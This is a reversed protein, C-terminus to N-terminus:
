FWYHVAVNSMWQNANLKGSSTTELTGDIMFKGFNLTMGAAVATTERGSTETTSTTAADGDKTERDNLFFNQKVSARVTLWSTADTEFGINVPLASDTREDSQNTTKAESKTNQYSIDAIWRSTSSVEKIHGAGVTLTTTSGEQKAAATASTYESGVKNYDAYFTWDMMKYNAGINMYEGEWKSGATGDFDAEDKISMNAYAGLDGMLIGLGLNLNDYTKETTNTAKESASARHLRVGWEVGADGGFFLDFESSADAFGGNGTTVDNVGTYDVDDTSNTFADAGFYLGYVFSGANRFIGAEANRTTATADGTEVVMYNNFRNVFAANRFKNRTDDIYFSGKDQAQGLASMRAKTAYVSTTALTAITALVIQKKM